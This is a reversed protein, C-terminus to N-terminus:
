VLRIRSGRGLDMVQSKNQDMNLFLMKINMPALVQFKIQGLLIGIIRVLIIDLNIKRLRDRLRTNELALKIGKLIIKRDEM